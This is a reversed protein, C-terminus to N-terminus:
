ENVSQVFAVHLQRLTLDLVHDYHLYCFDMMVDEEVDDTEALVLSQNEHVVHDVEYAEVQYSLAVVEVVDVVVVVSYAFAVLVVAVVRHVAVILVSSQHLAVLLVAVLGVLLLAVVLDVEFAVLEEVSASAVM